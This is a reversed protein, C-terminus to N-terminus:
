EPSDEANGIYLDEARQQAEVLLRRARSYDAEDIALIADTAANFLIHYLFKYDM